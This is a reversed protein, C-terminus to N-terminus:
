PHHPVGGILVDRATLTGTNVQLTLTLDRARRGRWIETWALPAGAQAAELVLMQRVRIGRERGTKHTREIHLNCRPKIYGM